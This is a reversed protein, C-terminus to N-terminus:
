AKLVPGTTTHTSTGSVFKICKQMEHGPRGAEQVEFIVECRYVM